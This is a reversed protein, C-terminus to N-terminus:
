VVKRIDSGPECLQTSASQFLLATRQRVHLRGAGCLSRPQLLLVEVRCSHRPSREHRRLPREEATARDLRRASWRWLSLSLKRWCRDVDPFREPGDYNGVGGM